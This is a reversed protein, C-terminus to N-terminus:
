YKRMGTERRYVNGQKVGMEIEPEGGVLGGDVGDGWANPIWSMAGTM